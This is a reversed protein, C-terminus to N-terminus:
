KRNLNVTGTGSDYVYKFGGPADPIKAIYTPALDDLSKPYHGEKTNYDNVAQRIAPLGQLPQTSAQPAKHCGPVAIAIIIATFLAYLAKM